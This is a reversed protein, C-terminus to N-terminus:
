KNAEEDQILMDSYSHTCLDTEEIGLGNMHEACQAQLREHPLTHDSDMVEIETFSGLKHVKDIHFKVNELYYIEREKDIVTLTGLAESLQRHLQEAQEGAVPTLTFDSTKPGSQDPRRYFILNNEIRGQRLKLRGAQVNFYTDIQHDTGRFEAKLEKLYNRVTEPSSCRAKIEVNRM